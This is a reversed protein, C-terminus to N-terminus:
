GMRLARILDQEAATRQRARQEYPRMSPGSSSSGQVGSLQPSVPLSSTPVHAVGSATVRDSLPTTELEGEGQRSLESAIHEEMVPRSSKRVLGELRGAILDARDSLAELEGQLMRSQDIMRGLARGSVDGATQLKEVGNEARRGSEDLKSVLDALERRDRRLVSLARGLYISYFIGLLLLICLIFEMVYEFNTM